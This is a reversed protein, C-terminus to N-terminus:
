DLREEFLWYVRFAGEEHFRKSNFIACQLKIRETLTQALSPYQLAVFVAIVNIAGLILGASSCSSRSYQNLRASKAHLLLLINVMAAKFISRLVKDALYTENQKSLLNVRIM